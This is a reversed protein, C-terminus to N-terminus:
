ENVHWELLRPVSNGLLVDCAGRVKCQLQLQASPAPATARPCPPQRLPPWALHIQVNQAIVIAWNTQCQARAIAKGREGQWNGGAFPAPLHGPPLPSGETTACNYTIDKAFVLETRSARVKRKWNAVVDLSLCLSFPGFLCRRQQLCQLRVPSVLVSSYHDILAAASPQSVSPLHKWHPLCHVM